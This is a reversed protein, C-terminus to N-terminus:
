DPKHLYMCLIWQFADDDCDDDVDDCDGDDDEEHDHDEVMAFAMVMVMVADIIEMERLSDVMAVDETSNMEEERSSTEAEVLKLVVMTAADIDEVLISFIVLAM